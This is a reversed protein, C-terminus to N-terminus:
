IQLLAVCKRVFVCVCVCVRVCECQNEQKYKMVDFGERM